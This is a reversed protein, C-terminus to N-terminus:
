QSRSDSGNIRDTGTIIVRFCAVTSHQTASWLINVINLCQITNVWTGSPYEASRAGKPLPPPVEGRGGRCHLSPHMQVYSRACRKGSDEATQQWGDVM